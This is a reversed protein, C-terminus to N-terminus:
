GAPLVRLNCIEWDNVVLRGEVDDDAGARGYGGGAGAGGDWHGADGDGLAELVVGLRHGAAALQAVVRGLNHEVFLVGLDRVAELAAADGGEASPRVLAGGGGGASEGDDDDGPAAPGNVIILGSAGARAAGVAKDLFTCGGREVLAVYPGLRWPGPACGDSGRALLPVNGSGVAFSLGAAPSCAFARGFTATAAVLALVAVPEPPPHHAHARGAASSPPVATLRLLLEAPAHPAPPPPSPRPVLGAMKRDTLVVQQGTRVRHPGIHSVDYGQGDLRWRVTLHLGDVNAIEFDGHANLRVKDTGPSKDRPPPPPPPAAADHAPPSLVLEFSYRPPLPVTCQGGEPLEEEGGAAGWVLMRAYDYEARGRAGVALGGLTPGVPAPCQVDENRHLARRAATPPQLLPRPMHLAHGETTFVENRNPFPENAFLLYLYKLTESLMFSEMRDELEGTELDKVTAFGCPTTTKARIDAVVREGVELYFDDKTAQYLYYTSEVFEPRGPWGAWGIQRLGVDWSEPIGGFRRWLQWWVLHARAAADVDGALVQLAPFFASLSDIITNQPATLLRLQVPRYIMGDATRVHNMIATYADQFIDLYTPDDLMVGAKLAYEFFSDMGAGVGSLGPQLWMGHGAGIANGLLDADSRRHWLALFARRAADEYTSDNTLRSLLSFELILSGAGALCTEMSEGREVGKALNVRALPIGTSTKFAPMLRDALDRALDLMRSAYQRVDVEGQVGLRAAQEAPSSPFALLQQHTALLSGLARITMEFVQVRADSAFSTQNVRELAAPLASPHILALSSLVDLLTMSANAHVDAIGMNGPDSARLLPGCTLPRLEDAPYAHKMYGEYGHVFMERVQERLATRRAASMASGGPAILVALLAGIWPIRM